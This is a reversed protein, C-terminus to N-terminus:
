MSRQAPPSRHTTFANAFKIAWEPEDRVTRSRLKQLAHWHPWEDMVPVEYSMSRVLLLNDVELTELALGGAPRRDASVRQHASYRRDCPPAPVQPNPPRAMPRLPLWHRASNHLRPLASSPLQRYQFDEPVPLLVCYWSQTRPM